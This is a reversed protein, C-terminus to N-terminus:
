HGLKWLRNYIILSIITQGFIMLNLIIFFWWLGSKSQKALLYFIGLNITLALVGIILIKEHYYNLFCFLLLGNLLTLLSLFFTNKM